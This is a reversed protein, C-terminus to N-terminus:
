AKALHTTVCIFFLISLTRSIFSMEYSELIRIALVFPSKHFMLKILRHDIGYWLNLNTL